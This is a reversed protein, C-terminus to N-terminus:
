YTPSYAGGLPVGSTTAFGTYHYALCGGGCQDFAQASWRQSGYGNGGTGGVVFTNAFPACGGCAAYRITQTDMNLQASTYLSTSRNWTTGCSYSWRFEIKGVLVNSNTYHFTTPSFSTRNWCPNYYDADLYDLAFGSLADARTPAIFNSLGVLLSVIAVFRMVKM